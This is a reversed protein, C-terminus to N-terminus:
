HISFHLRLGRPWVEIKSIRSAENSCRGAKLDCAAMTELFICLKGKIWVSAHAVFNSRPYFLDLDVWPWWKLLSRNAWTAYAIYWTVLNDVLKNWLLDDKLPTKVKYMYPCPLWSQWSVLIFPSFNCKWTGLLTWKFNPKQSFWTKINSDSHGKALTLSHGQGKISM